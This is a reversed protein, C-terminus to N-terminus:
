SRISVAHHLSHLTCTAFRITAATREHGVAAMGHVM